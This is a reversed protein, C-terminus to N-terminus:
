RRLSFQPEALEFNSTKDENRHEVLYSDYAYRQPRKGAVALDLGELVRFKDVLKAYDLAARETICSVRKHPTQRNGSSQHFFSHFPTTNKEISKKQLEVETLFKINRKFALVTKYCSYSEDNAMKKQVILDFVYDADDFRKNNGAVIIYSNCINVDACKGKAALFFVREAEDFCEHNGAVQIYYNYTQANALKQEILFNFIRAAEEFQKNKFAATIYINCIGLSISQSQISQNFASQVESWQFANGAAIIYKSYTDKHLKYGSALRFLRKAEEFVGESLARILENECVEITVWGQELAFVFIRKEESFQSNGGAAVMYKKYTEVNALRHNIALKFANEAENFYGNNGAMEIYKNYLEVSLHYGQVRQFAEKALNFDNNLATNIYINVVAVNVRKNACMSNFAKKAEYFNKNNLATIIYIEYARGNLWNNTDALNFARSMEDFRDNERAIAIFDSCINAIFEWPYAIKQRRPRCTTSILDFARQAEEFWGHGGAALMYHHLSVIDVRGRQLYYDFQLKTPAFNPNRPLM